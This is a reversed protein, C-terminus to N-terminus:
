GKSVAKVGAVIGVIVAYVMVFVFTLASPGWFPALVWWWSWTIYGLLKLGIFLVTLLSLFASGGIAVVPTTDNM